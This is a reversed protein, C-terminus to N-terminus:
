VVNDDNKDGREKKKECIAKDKHRISCRCVCRLLQLFKSPLTSMTAALKVKKNM